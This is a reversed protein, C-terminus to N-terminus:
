AMVLFIYDILSLIGCKKLPNIKCPLIWMFNFDLNSHEFPTINHRRMIIKKRMRM